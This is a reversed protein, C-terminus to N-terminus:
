VAKKRLEARKAEIKEIHELSLQIAIIPGIPFTIISAMVAVFAGLPSPRPHFEEYSGQIAKRIREQDHPTASLYTELIRAKLSKGFIRAFIAKWAANIINTTKDFARDMADLAKDLYSNEEKKDIVVEPFIAKHLECTDSHSMKWVISIVDDVSLVHERQAHVTFILLLPILIKKVVYVEIKIPNM